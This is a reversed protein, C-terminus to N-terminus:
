GTLPTGTPLCFSVWRRGGRTRVCSAVEFSFPVLETLVVRTVWQGTLWMDAHCNRPGRCGKRVSRTTGILVTSSGSGVIELAAQLSAIALRTHHRGPLLLCRSVGPELCAEIADGPAIMRTQVARGM